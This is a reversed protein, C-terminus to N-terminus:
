PVSYAVLRSIGCFASPQLTRCPFQDNGHEQRAIWSFPTSFNLPQIPRESEHRSGRTLAAGTPLPAYTVYPQGQRQVWPYLSATEWRSAHLCTLCAGRETATGVCQQWLEM